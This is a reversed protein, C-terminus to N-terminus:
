LFKWEDKYQQADKVPLNLVTSECEKSWFGKFRVKNNM